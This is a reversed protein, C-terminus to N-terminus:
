SCCPVTHPSMVGPGPFVTMLPLPIVWQAPSASVGAVCGNANWGTSMDPGFAPLSLLLIKLMFFPPEGASEQVFQLLTRHFLAM